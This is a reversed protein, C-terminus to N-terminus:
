STFGYVASTRLRGDCVRRKVREVKGPTNGKKPADVVTDPLRQHPVADVSGFIAVTIPKATVSIVGYRAEVIGIRCASGLAGFHESPPM